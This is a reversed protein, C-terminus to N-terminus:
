VINYKVKVAFLGILSFDLILFCFYYTQKAFSGKIDADVFRSHLKGFTFLNFYLIKHHQKLYGWRRQAWVGIPREDISM